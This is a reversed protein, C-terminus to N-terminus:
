QERIAKLLPGTRLTPRPPMKIPKGKSVREFWITNLESSVLSDHDPSSFSLGGDALLTVVPWCEGEPGGPDDTGKKMSFGFGDAILESLRLHTLPPYPAYKGRWDRQTQIQERELIPPPQHVRERGLEPAFRTCVLANYADDDTAAYLYDLDRLDVMHEGVASLIEVHATSLGARRAARLADWSPDAILSPVGAKRLAQAFAVTWASAGVILLGPPSGSALKLFRALPGLSLGHLVVTATIVCFVMPLILAGDRYGAQTLQEGVLGAVAAAVVGRPGIWGVLARERWNMRAGITALAIAAPRALFLIAATTLVIPWSLRRLISPDLNATLLIFLGSVLFITLSEKFRRLERLGTVDINALVVGFLTAGILGTEPEVAEGVAYVGLAGALLIATKLYEPAMDKNFTWRLAYPLACGISAAALAGLLTRGALLAIAAPDHSHSRLLVTFSLILLTLTAGIPDNVIGEWKLFAGTRPELKAQRLLPIVVTPGTVVLISGFLVAAWWGLGGIYHGILAGFLWNLPLAFFVLRIVGSGATRLERFNLNLGGEFVIIAVVMGIAPSMVGGLIKGPKVWGTIPGLLLGFTLLVLISPTNFRWGIWQAAVGAVAVGAVLLLISNEL